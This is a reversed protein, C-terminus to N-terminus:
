FLWNIGVTFFSFWSNDFGGSVHGRYASDQTVPMDGAWLFEYATDIAVSKSCRWQTGIGFRYAKGMPLSLTRDQDSVASSDYAVGGMFQWAESAKFQVGAAGHWTDQYNLNATLSSPSASDVGVDVKGFENWNQWGVDAMVAWNTGLAQWAGLMVSQPVTMGLNLASPNSFIPLGGLAGLNSYSPTANFDLKVRSLYTLGIRTGEVPTVLIGANGGFGWTHDKLKLQGDDPALTRVAVESELYGYMANLGAGISLWDTPKYSAAPMLTMGVLSSKQMYYRGVWDSNYNEMLGFYSFTGFGVAFKDSLQHTFFLSMAPLAGIANGGDNNGLFPSTSSDPTFKVNGYTLQAGAQLQSGPLQSMGAPNKFLTSADQARAAYGASALGVDPTAIEYLMIGGALAGTSPALLCVAAFSTRLNM